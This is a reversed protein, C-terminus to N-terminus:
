LLGGKSVAAIRGAAGRPLRGGQQLIHRRRALCTSHLAYIPQEVITANAPKKWGIEGKYSGCSRCFIYGYFEKYGVWGRAGCTCLIVSNRHLGKERECM